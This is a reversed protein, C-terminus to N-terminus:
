TCLIVDDIWFSQLDSVFCFLCYYYVDMLCYQEMVDWFIPKNGGIPLPPPPSFNDWTPFCHLLAHFSVPLLSTLCLYVPLACLLSTLCLLFNTFCSPITITFCSPFHTFYSPFHTFCSPFCTGFIFQYISALLAYFSSSFQYLIYPFASPFQYVVPVPLAGFLM